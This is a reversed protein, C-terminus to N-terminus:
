GTTKENLRRVGMPLRELHTRTHTHTRKHTHTGCEAGELRARQFFHRVGVAHQTHTHTHTHGREAQQRSLWRRVGMSNARRGTAHGECVCVFACTHSFCGEHLSSVDHCAEGGGGGGAVIVVCAHVCASPLEFPDPGLVAQPLRRFSPAYATETRNEPRFFFAWIKKM